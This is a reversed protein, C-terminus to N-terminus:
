NLEKSENPWQKVNQGNHHISRYYSYMVSGREAIKAEEWWSSM